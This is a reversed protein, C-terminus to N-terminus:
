VAGYGANRSLADELAKAFEARALQWPWAEIRDVGAPSPLRATWNDRAPQCCLDRHEVAMAMLDARKIAECEALSPPAVGFSSRVADDIRDATYLQVSVGAVRQEWRKMPTPRDGGMFPEHADHLLALLEIRPSAGFARVLDRVLLSHQAVSIPTLAKGGWRNITALHHALAEITLSEFECEGDPKLLLKSGDCVELWDECADLNDLQM